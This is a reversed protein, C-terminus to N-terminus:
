ALIEEFLDAEVEHLMPIGTVESALKNLAAIDSRNILDLRFKRTGALLQKLGLGIRESLYSYVGVAPWPIETGIKDGYKSRLDEAAIFFKEPSNGYKNAFDRPLRRREALECFYLAKMAATLPSRAM